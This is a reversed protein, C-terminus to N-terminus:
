RWGYVVCPRLLQDLEEAEEPSVRTREIYLLRLSTIPVVHKLIGTHTVETRDLKLSGLKPLTRLYELGEDTVQTGSLDLYVLSRLRQLEALGAATTQTGELDLYELNALESLHRLGADTTRANTISLWRLSTLHRLLALADDETPRGFAVDAEVFYEAGLINGLHRAGPLTTPYALDNVKSFITWGAVRLKGIARRQSRYVDVEPLRERWAALAEDTVSTSDLVLAGLTSLGSLRRLHSDGFEEGGVVLAEIAPLRAIYPVYRDPDDSNALNVLVLNQHDEGFLRRQWATPGSSQYTGHLEAIVEMARRQQAYPELYTRYAEAAVAAATVALLLTRLRFQYWRRRDASAM